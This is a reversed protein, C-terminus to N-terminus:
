KFKKLNGAVDQVYYEKGTFIKAGSSKSDVTCLTDHWNYNGTTPSSQPAAGSAQRANGGKGWRVNRYLLGSCKDEYDCVFYYAIEHSNCEQKDHADGGMYTCSVIPKDTDIKVDVKCKKTNGAKDSIAIEGDKICRGLESTKFTKSFKNKACGSGGSDSCEITLKKNDKNTWNTRPKKVCTPKTKDIKVKFAPCTVANLAEDYYITHPFNYIGEERYTQSQNNPEKCGSGGDTCSSTVVVNTNTWTNSTYPGVIAGDKKKNATYNCKPPVTDILIEKDDTAPVYLSCNGAKDCARYKISSNGDVNINFYNATGTKNYSPNSKNTYQYQYNNVQSILDSSNSAETFIFKNTWNGFQYLPLGASTSVDAKSNKVYVNVTPETPPVRDLPAIIDISVENKAKDQLTYKATRYGDVNFSFNSNKKGPLSFQDTKTLTQNNINPDNKVLNVQNEKLEGKSLTLNDNALVDYYVGYPYNALNLWKDTGHGDKYDKLVQHKEENNAVVTKVLEGKAGSALRKYAKITLTPATWDLNVRVKCKTEKGANDKITIYGWEAEETFTKTFVDKVCGSGSEDNCVVSIKRKKLNGNWDFENEAQGEINGCKPPILDKYNTIEFKKKYGGGRDYVEAIAMIDTAKKVDIYDSINKNVNVEEKGYASLSGSNYIEVYEKEDEYKVKILYNYGQIGFKNNEQDTGSKFDIKVRAESVNNKATTIENGKSDTFKIEIKPDYKKSDENHKEDGCYLYTVYTYKDKDYKYIKVFSNKMCSNKDADKIEEKLYNSDKLENAKIIRSDGISKPLKDKNAETYSKTAMTLTDRSSKRSEEKSKNILFFVSPITVIMLIALITITALLEIMTFGKRNKGM